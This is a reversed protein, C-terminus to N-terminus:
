WDHSRPWATLRHLMTTLLLTRQESVNAHRQDCMAMVNLTTTGRGPQEFVETLCYKIRFILFVLRIPLLIIISIQNIIYFTFIYSECVPDTGCVPGIGVFPGSFRVDDWLQASKESM